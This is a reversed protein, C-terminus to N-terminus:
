GWCCAEELVSFFFCVIPELVTFHEQLVNKRPFGHSFTFRLGLQQDQETRSISRVSVADALHCGGGLRGLPIPRRSSITTRPQRGRVAFPSLASSTGTSVTVPSQLSCDSSPSQRSCHDCEWAPLHSHQGRPLPSSPPRSCRATVRHRSGAATIAKGHLFIIVEACFLLFVQLM